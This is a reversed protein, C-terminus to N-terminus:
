TIDEDLVEYLTKAQSAPISREPIQLVEVRNVKKGWAVDIRDGDKVENGPKAVKGNVQVRGALCAEKASTRRKILRSIQLFKDLRM